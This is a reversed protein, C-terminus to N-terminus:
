ADLLNPSTRVAAGAVPAGRFPQRASGGRLMAAMSAIWAVELLLRIWVPGVPLLPITAWGGDIAEALLTIGLALTLLRLGRSLGPQFRALALLWTGLLVAGAVALIRLEQASGLVLLAGFVVGGFLWAQTLGRQSRRFLAIALLLLILLQLGPVIVKVTGLQPAFVGPKAPTDWWGCLAPLNRDALSYNSCDAVLLLKNPDALLRGGGAVQGTCSPLAIPDSGASSSADWCNGQGQGDWWFDIGNPLRHGSSDSGLHNATFRNFNSTNEQAGSSFDGRVAGPAWLLIFGGQWNDYVWNNRFQDYDGGAVIVGVGVPVPPGPCVVGQEIGRTSYPKDCTGDRVYPYYNTNNSAIVNHEFLAHNQPLGPHNPFLSDMSVGGQNADFVNDHAWVSDGGTGSYGLANHHSHCGTVEIAYRPVAYGRDRNIDSTGGPYVGSDGNGYAECNEFLGHDSAFSLFGYETNWRGVLRDIVFGDTELVYVANFTTREATFNRFYIGDSRDARIANLKQFQADIVVDGPGAGTGEIQLDRVGFIGVLNQLHPCSRQQEYSLILSGMRSRPAKLKACEPPGPALSPMEQYLGPLILINTGPQRVADVAEQLNRYGDRQCEQFLQRNSTALPATFGAIRHELDTPDDGCVLLRPGATRYTPVSGTGPPFHAPREQHALAALPWLAAATSFAVLCASITRVAVFV